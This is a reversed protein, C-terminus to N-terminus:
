PEVEKKGRIIAEPHRELYDTLTRLSQAARTLERLADRADQSLPADTALSQEVTNLAKRADDLTARVEPVVEGDLKNIFQDTRKLTADLTQLAHRLDSAVADFPVKDLKKVIRTLANQLEELSGPITPLELPSKSWDMKVKPADRFFDLAIFLQQTLLNGTRLQGRLGHDIMRGLLQKPDPALRKANNRYKSRLRDPYLRVEVAITFEKQDRDFDVDISAVEGVVVGRFDVPAGPSLGRVSERFVMVYTSAITDPVKMAQDRDSALRFVRDPKAPEDGGVDPATQFAIGGIILSALSETDLRIGNPDLTVDIGSAHWFRTGNTVYKDYPANVFVKLTVGKGDQDLEFAVVQGVEIRRFFVPSGIDLSGLDDGHLTFQRGQLDRTVVPPTELGVFHDMETTSKGADVGIYAGSLLTTLGSVSGGAIRPRVIWFRTDDVLFSQAQKTLQATVIVASRDESLGITKVEGIDVNKYKIKTKGAELGEASKFRITITPGREMIAQAALWAGILAVVLPVLWILSLTSRRPAVAVAEPITDPGPPTEAM